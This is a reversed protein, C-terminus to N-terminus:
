VPDGVKVESPAPTPISGKGDPHSLTVVRVSPIGMEALRQAIQVPLRLSAVVLQDYNALPVEEIRQVRFGLFDSRTEAEEVVGVIELGMEQITLYAIEAFEDTGWLLVRRMGSLRMVELQQNLYRRIGGYLHLSYQIFEVTLRSKELIGQPTILYSIRRPKTGAVKIYGKKVLRRLMVNALGLAVGMRKALDRQTANPTKEVEHLLQMDRYPAPKRTEQMPISDTPTESM